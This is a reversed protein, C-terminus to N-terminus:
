KLSSPTRKPNGDVPPFGFRVGDGFALFELCTAVRLGTQGFGFLISPSVIIVSSSAYHLPTPQGFGSM